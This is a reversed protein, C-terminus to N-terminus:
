IINNGILSSKSPNRSFGVAAPISIQTNRRSKTETNPQYRRAVRTYAERYVKVVNCADSCILKTGTHDFKTAFVCIPVEQSDYVKSRNIKQFRHGSKFDWMHIVGNSGGAVTVGHHNITVSNIAIDEAQIEQIMDGTPLEWAIIRESSASLVTAGEPHQALARVSKNHGQLVKICRGEGIDWVRLTGDHSGSVIQRTQEAAVVCSATNQHGRLTKVCKTTRTDYLKVLKDRGGTILLHSPPYMCMSYIVAAQGKFTNTIRNIEVDHCYLQRDDASTYLHRHGAIGFTMARVAQKHAKIVLKQRGNNIDWMRVTKDSSGTAFWRNTPDIILVPIADTHALIEQKLQWPPHWKPKRPLEIHPEEEESAGSFPSGTFYSGEGMGFEDRGNKMADDPFAESPGDEPLPEINEGPLNTTEFAPQTVEDNVFGNNDVGSEITDNEHNTKLSIVSSLINPKDENEEVTKEENTEENTTHTTEFFDLDTNIKADDELAKPKDNAPTGNNYGESSVIEIPENIPQNHPSEEKKVENPSSNKRDNKLEPISGLPDYVNDIRTMVRKLEDDSGESYDDQPLGNSPIDEEVKKRKEYTITSTYDGAGYEMSTPRVTTSNSSTSRKKESSPRNKDSTPSGAQPITVDRANSLPVTDGLIASPANQTTSSDLQELAPASEEVLRTTETPTPHKEINKDHTRGVNIPPLVEATLDSSKRHKLSARSSTRVPPLPANKEYQAKTEMNKAEDMLKTPPTRPMSDLGLFTEDKKTDTVSPTRGQKPTMFKRELDEDEAKGYLGEDEHSSGGHLSLLSDKRSPISKRNVASSPREKGSVPRNIGSPPRKEKEKQNNEGITRTKGSPPRTKGSPPRTKGSTLLHESDNQIGEKEAKRQIAHTVIRGSLPRSKGPTSMNNSTQEEVGESFLDYKNDHSTNFTKGQLARRGSPPRKSKLDPNPRHKPIPTNSASTQPTQKQFREGDTPKKRVDEEQADYLHNAEMLAPADFTIPEFINRDISATSEDRNSNIRNNKYNHNTNVQRTETVNMRSEHNRHTEQASMCSNHEESNYLRQKDDNNKKKLAFFM